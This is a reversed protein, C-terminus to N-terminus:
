MLYAAAGGVGNKSSNPQTSNPHQTAAANAGADPKPAAKTTPHPTPETGLGSGSLGDSAVLTLTEVVVSPIDDVFEVTGFELVSIIRPVIKKLSQM